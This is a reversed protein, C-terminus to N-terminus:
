ILNNKEAWERLEEQTEEDYEKLMSEFIDPYIGEDYKSLARRLAGVVEVVRETSETDALQAFNDAAQKLWDAVGRLLKRAFEDKIEAVSLEKRLVQLLRILLDKKEM